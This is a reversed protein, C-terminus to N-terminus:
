FVITSIRFYESQPQQIEQFNLQKTFIEWVCTTTTVADEEHSNSIKLIFCFLTVLVIQLPTIQHHQMMYWTEHKQNQSHISIQLIPVEHSAFFYSM